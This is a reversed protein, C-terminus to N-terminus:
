EDNGEKTTSTRLKSEFFKVVDSRRYRVCRGLKMYRPGTGMHRWYALTNLNVNSARAVEGPTAIEPLETFM